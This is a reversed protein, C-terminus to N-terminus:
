PTLPALNRKPIDGVFEFVSPAFIMDGTIGLGLGLGFGIPGGVLAGAIAAGVGIGGSILARRFKQLDNLYPNDYDSSYQFGASLLGATGAGLTNALRRAAFQTAIDDTGYKLNQAVLRVTVNRGLSVSEGSAFAEDALAGAIMMEGRLTQTQLGKFIKSLPGRLLGQAPRISLTEFGEAELFRVSTRAGVIEVIGTSAPTARWIPHTLAQALQPLGSYSLM